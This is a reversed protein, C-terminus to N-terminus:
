KNTCNEHTTELGRVFQAIQGDTVQYPDYEHLIGSWQRIEIQEEQAAVKYLEIESRYADIEDQYCEQGSYMEVWGSNLRRAIHTLEHAVAFLLVVSEQRYRPNILVELRATPSSNAVNFKAGSSIRDSFYIILCNRHNSNLVTTYAPIVTVPLQKLRSIAHDIEPETKYPTDRQCELHPQSAVTKSGKNWWFWGSGLCAAVLLWILGKHKM